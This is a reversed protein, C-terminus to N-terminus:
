TNKNKIPILTRQPTDYVLTWDLVSRNIVTGAPIMTGTGLRVGSLIIAGAGIFCGDGVKIPAKKPPFYKQLPHTSYGIKMHTSFIAGEGIATHKGFAIQDALDLSVNDSIVSYDGVQLNRLGSHHINILRVQGFVVGKGVHAGFLKLWFTRLPPLFMWDFIISWVSFFIYRLLKKLGLEHLAEMYVTM